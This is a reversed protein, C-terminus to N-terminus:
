TYSLTGDWKDVFTGDTPQTFHQLSIPDGDADTDNALLDAAVDIDLPTDEDTTLSDDNAVGVALIGSWGDQAAQSVAIDSEIVGAQYELDWDGGLFAHGTVDESAAVDAGTLQSINNLLAQGDNDAAINCGYFLLDGTDTLAEGWGAVADNFQQLNDSSLVTDGLNIRGEDGHTIFHVSSLNSREGLIDSIQEIGDTDGDLIIVEFIRNDETPLEEILQEYDVINEHVFVLESRVAADSQGAAQTDTDLGTPDEMAVDQVLAQDDVLDPDIGPLLDASFLLRQELEECRFVKPQKVAHKNAM